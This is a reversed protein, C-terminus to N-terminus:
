EEKTTGAGMADGETAAGEKRAVLVKIREVVIITFNHILKGLALLGRVSM